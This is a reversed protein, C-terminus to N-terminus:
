ETASTFNAVIMNREELAAYRGSVQNVQVIAVVVDEPVARLVSNVLETGLAQGDDSSHGKFGHSQQVLFLEHLPPREQGGRRLRPRTHQQNLPHDCRPCCPSFAWEPRPRGPNCSSM